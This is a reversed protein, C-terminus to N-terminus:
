ALPVVRRAMWSPATSSLTPAGDRRRLAWAFLNAFLEGQEIADDLANHTHPAEPLLEAPMHRKSSLDFVTGAQAQYLTRIDLCSSHGFPSGTPCFREFYWYMFSWDFAVPYAVLVPRHGNAVDAVWAAADEMATVPDAGEAVLRDRNLGNVELAEPQFTESIPRLERYLTLPAHPRRLREGDFTGVVYMGFSLLSYVGPVPGDTEVDASIYLDPRAHDPM